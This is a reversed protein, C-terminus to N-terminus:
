DRLFLVRTSALIENVKSVPVGLGRATKWVDAAVGKGVFIANKLEFIEQLRSPFGETFVHMPEPAKHGSSLQVVANLKKNGVRASIQFMVPDGTDPDTGETDFGIVLAGSAAKSLLLLSEVMSNADAHSRVHSVDSRAIEDLRAGPKKLEQALQWRFYRDEDISKSCEGKRPPPLSLTPLISVDLDDDVRVMLAGSANVEESDAGAPVDQDWSALMERNPEPRPQGDRALAM